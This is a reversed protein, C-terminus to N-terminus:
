GATSRTSRLIMLVIPSRGYPGRGWAVFRRLGEWIAEFSPTYVDGIKPKKAADPPFDCRVTVGVLREAAGLAYVIETMSPALSVVRAPREPVTVRRGLMDRVEAAGAAGATALLLALSLNRM